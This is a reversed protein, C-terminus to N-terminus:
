LVSRGWSLRPDTGGRVNRGLDVLVTSDMMSSDVQRPLKRDAEDSRNFEILSSCDGVSDPITDRSALLYREVRGGRSQHVLLMADSLAITGDGTWWGKVADNYKRLQERHPTWHEENDSLQKKVEAVVGYARKVASDVRAM